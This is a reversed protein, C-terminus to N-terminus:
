DNLVYHTGSGVGKRVLRKETVARKFFSIAQDYGVGAIERLQQNRVTKNESLFAEAVKWCRSYQENTLRTPHERDQESMANGDLKVEM